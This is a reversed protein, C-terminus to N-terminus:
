RRGMDRQIQEYATEASDTTFSDVRGFFNLWADLQPNAYRLARRASSLDSQFSSILKLETKESVMLKIAARREKNKKVRGLHLYEEVLKQEGEPYTALVMEWVQNYKRFYEENVLFRVQEYPTTNRSLFEEWEKKFEDPIAAEIAKRYTWFSDWDRYLEGTEPDEVEELKISFYLNMLERMPHQVPPTRGHRKYMDLREELTIAVDKYLDSKHLEDIYERKADYVKTMQTIYDKPGRKGSRFEAQYQLAEQTKSENFKEVDNWFMTQRNLELQQTSPLLPNRASVWKYYDLEELIAQQTPSLGGVLDWLREGRRRLDEQQEPTIGTMEFIIQSAAEYVEYQEDTRLRFMGFQEFPIGWLAAERRGASWASREEDTLEVGEQIKTWILVGNAGHRTAEIIAAYDHFRDNFLRDRIANAYKNDPFAAVMMNLASRHLSPLLEGTQAELGGILSLPAQIHIGPYFGWRSLGDMMEVFGGLPLSDYYEPFDRRTLRTTLTGYITGRFPNIDASTGPIHIYGYDTNNQWREFNTFTGPHRVFSRPLWYLRQSEYTWYPYIAKMFADFANANTYDPYEKYYWKHAEDMADQRLTQYDSFEPKLVREVPPGPPALPVQPLGREVIRASKIAGPDVKFDKYGHNWLEVLEKRSIEARGLAGLEQRARAISQAPLKSVDIELEVLAGTGTKLTYKDPLGLLDALSETAAPVGKAKAAEEGRLAVAEYADEISQGTKRALKKSEVLLRAHSNLDTLIEGVPFHQAWRSAVPATATSLGKVVEGARYAFPEFEKWSLGYAKAVGRAVDEVNYPVRPGESVLAEAFEEPAGHYLKITGQGSAITEIDKMTHSYKLIRPSLGMEMGKTITPEYILKELANAHADIYGHMKEIQEKPFQKSNHLGWLEKRLGDIQMQSRTIYSFTDPRTHLSAVIQDYVSEVAERTFGADSPRVRGMVYATFRPKSNVTLVELLARSIDDGRAGILNGIDAPALARGTVKISARARPRAGAAADMLERAQEMQGFLEADRLEFTSWESEMQMGFDDWFQPTRERRPTTAFIEHRTAMNQARFETAYEKRAMMIDLLRNAKTSYNAGLGIKPADARLKGVVREINVGADDLFGYIKLFTEDFASERQALQLGRSKITAQAVVQHPLAGYVDCMVQIQQMAWAMEQPNKVEMETLIKSLQEVQQTAMDPSRIFDEVLIDQAQQMTGDIDRWLTGRNHAKLVLDRAAPPIDPFLSMTNRLEARTLNKHTFADKVGRVLDVNVTTKARYVEKELHKALRKEVGAPTNPGSKAIDTILSGGDEALIQDYRRAIFNRRIDMGLGGPTRVLATYLKESWKKQGGTALQLVWNNHASAEGTRELYGIMESMGYRTLNPDYKLGYAVDQWAEVGMRRPMVHGLTSRGYDELVNMPGYMAFTLYAEAFPRVLMKDIYDRWVATVRTDIGQVLATMTGGELRSMYAASREILVQVKYNQRALARTAEFANEAQVMFRSRGIIRAGRTNLIKGATKYAGEKAPAISLVKLLQAGAEDRTVLHRFFYDEFVNDAGEIMEKTVEKEPIEAGLRETWRAIDRQNVPTHKLFEKGALAPLEESHPNKLAFRIASERAADMEAISVKNIPKGVFNEIHLRTFQATANEARMARIGATTPMKRLGAKIADFPLELVRAAGKEAAGVLRGFGGLPRTFRTAIGWGVYTFPDTFAEMILYKLFWNPADWAEWAQSMAMWPDEGSARLRNYEAEIDPIMVPLGKGLLEAVGLVPLLPPLTWPFKGWLFGALPMSVHEFYYGGIVMLDYGPQVAFQKLLDKLGAPHVSEIGQKYAKIKNRSDIWELVMRNTEQKYFDLLDEDAAITGDERLGKLWEEESLVPKPRAPTKFAKILDAVTAQHTTVPVRRAVPAPPVLGPLELEETYEELARPLGEVLEELEETAEVFIGEVMERAEASEEETLSDPAPISSLIDDPTLFDLGETNGAQEAMAAVQAVMQSNVATAYFWNYKEFEGIVPLLEQKIESAPRTTPITPAVPVGVYVPPQGEREIVVPKRIEEFREIKEEPTQPTMAKAFEKGLEEARHGALRMKTGYEEAKSRWPIVGALKLPLIPPPEVPIKEKPRPPLKPLPM